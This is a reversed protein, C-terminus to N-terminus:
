RKKREHGDAPSAIGGGLAQNVLRRAIEIKGDIVAESLSTLLEATM